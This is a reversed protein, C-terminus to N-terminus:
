KRAVILNGPLKKVTKTKLNFSHMSSLPFWLGRHKYSLAVQYTMANFISLNCLIDEERSWGVALLHGDVLFKKREEPKLRPSGVVTILERDPIVGDRVFRRIPDFDDRLLVRENEELTHALYNFAIKGVCRRIIDDFQYTISAALEPQPLVPERSIQETAGFGLEHLRAKLKTLQEPSTVLYKVRSGPLIKRALEADLDEELYWKWVDSDREAFAVQALYLIDMGTPSAGPALLVKAGWIPGPVNVKATLRSGPLGAHSDRLGYQFRVVSEGTERGFCLELTDGFYQNCAACVCRLTLSDRFRGFSRPIVHEAPFSARSVRRCYICISVTLFWRLAFIRFGWKAM